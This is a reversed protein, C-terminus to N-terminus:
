ASRANDDYAAGYVGPQGEEDFTTWASADFKLDGNMHEHAGFTGVIVFKLIFITIWLSAGFADGETMNDFSPLALAYIVDFFLSVLILCLYLYLFTKEGSGLHIFALVILLGSWDIETVVMFFYLALQVTLEIYLAKKVPAAAMFKNWEAIMAENSWLHFISNAALATNLSSLVFAVRLLGFSAELETTGWGLSDPITTAYAVMSGFIFCWLAAWCSGIIYKQIEDTFGMNEIVDFQDAVWPISQAAYMGTFFTTALGLLLGFFLLRTALSGASHAQCWAEAPTFKPMGNEFYTMEIQRACLQRLSCEEDHMSCFYKNDKSEHTVNGFKVSALSLYADFPQGDALATAKLWAHNSIAIIQVVNIIFGLAAVVVLVKDLRDLQEM